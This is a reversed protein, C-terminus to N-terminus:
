LACVTPELSNFFNLSGDQKYTLSIIVKFVFITRSHDFLSSYVFVEIGLIFTM